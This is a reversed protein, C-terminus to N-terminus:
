QGQRFKPANVWSHTRCINELGVEKRLLQQQQEYERLFGQAKDRYFNHVFQTMHPMDQIILPPCDPLHDVQDFLNLLHAELDSVYAYTLCTFVYKYYHYNYNLSLCWLVSVPRITGYNEMPQLHLKLPQAMLQSFTPKLELCNMFLSVRAFIYLGLRARSM